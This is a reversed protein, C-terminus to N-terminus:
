IRRKEEAWACYPYVAYAAYLMCPSGFSLALRLGYGTLIYTHWFLPLALPQTTFVRWALWSFVLHDLFSAVATSFLGRFWLFRGRTWSRLASFVYVDLSQSLFYALLSAAFIGPAPTFLVEFARQVHMNYPVTSMWMTTLMWGTMLVSSTMSVYLARYAKHAGFFEVIMDFCWFLSCFVLTGQVMELPGSGFTAVKLVQINAAVTGVVVYGLLGAHGFFFFSALLGVACVIGQVAFFFESVFFLSTVHM